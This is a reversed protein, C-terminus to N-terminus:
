WEHPYVKKLYQLLRSEIETNINMFKIAYKIYESDLRGEAAQIRIVFGEMNPFIMDKSLELDFSVKDLIGPHIDDRKFSGLFGGLGIDVLKGTMSRSGFRITIPGEIEYRESKRRNLNEVTALVKETLGKITFPKILYSDIGARFARVIYEKESRSTLMIFSTEDLNQHNRMWKLLEEGNILPLEWDCIILDYRKKTMMKQAEKGNKAEDVIINEFKRELGQTTFDRIIEHDDAILVRVKVKGECSDRHM